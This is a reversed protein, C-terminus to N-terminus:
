ASINTKLIKNFNNKEIYRRHQFFTWYKRATGYSL